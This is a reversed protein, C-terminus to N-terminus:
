MYCNMSVYQMCVYMCVYLVGGCKYMCVLMHVYMCVYMHVYMCVHMGVYMSRHLESGIYAYEYTYYGTHSMGYIRVCVCACM